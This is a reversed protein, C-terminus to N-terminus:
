AMNFEASARDSGNKSLLPAGTLLPLSIKVCVKQEPATEISPNGGLAMSLQWASALALEPGERRTMRFTSAAETLAALRLCLTDANQTTSLLFSLLMDLTGKKNAVFSVQLELDAAAGVQPLSAAMIAILQHIQQANGHVCEPVPGVLTTHIKAGIEDTNKRAAAMASDIVEACDFTSEHLDPLEVQLEIGNLINNRKM